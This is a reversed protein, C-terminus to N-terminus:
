TIQTSKNSVDKILPTTHDESGSYQLYGSGDDNSISNDIYDAMLILLIKKNSTYNTRPSLRIVSDNISNFKLM